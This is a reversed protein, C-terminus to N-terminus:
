VDATAHAGVGKVEGSLNAWVTQDGSHVEAFGQDGFCDPAGGAPVKGDGKLHAIGLREAKGIVREVGDAGLTHQHVNEIGLLGEGLHSANEARAATHGDLVEVPSGLEAVGGVFVRGAFDCKGKAVSHFVTPYAAAERAEEPFDSHRADRNGEVGDRYRVIKELQKQAAVDGACDGSASDGCLFGVRPPAV